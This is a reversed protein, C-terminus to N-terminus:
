EKQFSLGQLDGAERMQRLMRFYPLPGDGYLENLLSFRAREPSGDYNYYSPTCTQLMAQRPGAKAVVEEVWADVATQTAEVVPTASTRCQDIVHAIYASQEEVTQTYNFSAGAQAVRIFFLNPFRDTQMGHLTRPGEKWHDSLKIGGRGYAELGAERTFEMLFDFGTAYVITDVAYEKGQVVVGNPTIREVGQGDTDILAVNPRNFAELYEDSFGPRKCFYDYWPKLALATQKNGIAREIRRRTMEMKKLGALQMEQLSAPDSAGGAPVPIHRLIDTWSDNVLDAPERGGSMISTFNDSRERQWGPKLTEAWGADTPKNGRPDISSPTRQFVYLQRAWHALRPISQIATSGTGIIAVTKDRLKTMEGSAQDGGTYAYDWRSTHFSHGNFTEVGPIKPLKPNALFGACSIVFRASLEDGRSTKVLWRKRQANWRLETVTTQFLAAPSLDFHRALRLLYAQIETAKAYKESPIYGTEELMPLYIYSEVDCAAGPYRNWYWTGGFDAGKEIIRLSRIGKERLRSGMVLGAIGGGIVLADVDEVVATRSFGPAAYRDHDFGAFKGKLEPYYRYQVKPLRKAREEAYKRRLAEVDIEFNVDGTADATV